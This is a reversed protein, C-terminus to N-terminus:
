LMTTTKAMCQGSDAMPTGTDKKHYQWCALLQNFAKKHNSQNTLLRSNVDGKHISSEQLMESFTRDDWSEAERAETVARDAALQLFNLQLSLNKFLGNQLVKIM